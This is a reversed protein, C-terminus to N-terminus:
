KTGFTQVWVESDAGGGDVTRRARYAIPLDVNIIKDSTATYIVGYNLTSKIKGELVVTDGSGINFQVQSLRDLNQLPNTVTQAAGTDGATTDLIQTLTAIIKNAM